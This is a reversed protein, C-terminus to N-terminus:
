CLWYLYFCTEEEFNIVQDFSQKYKNMFRTYGLAFNSRNIDVTDHEKCKMDHHISVGEIPLSLMASVDLL